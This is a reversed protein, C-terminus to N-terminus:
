QTIQHLHGVPSASFRMESCLCSFMWGLSSEMATRNTSWSRRTRTSQDSYVRDCLYCAPYCHQISQSFVNSTWIHTGDLRRGFMCISELCHIYLDDENKGFVNTVTARTFRIMDVIYSHLDETVVNDKSFDPINSPDVHTRSVSTTQTVNDCLERVKAIARLTRSCVIERLEMVDPSLQDVTNESSCLNDLILDINDEYVMACVPISRWDPTTITSPLSPLGDTDSQTSALFAEPLLKGSATEVVQVQLQISNNGM